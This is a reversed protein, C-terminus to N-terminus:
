VEEGGMMCRMCVAEYNSKNRSLDFLLYYAQDTALCYDLIFIIMFVSSCTCRFKDSKSPKGSANCWRPGERRTNRQTVNSLV